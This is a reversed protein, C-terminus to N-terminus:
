LAASGEPVRKELAKFPNEFMGEGFETDIPRGARCFPCRDPKFTKLDLEVLTAITLEAATPGGDPFYKLVRVNGRDCISVAGSVRGGADTVARAMEVLTQGTTVVDDVLLTRKGHLLQQFGGRLIRNARNFPNRDAFAFLVEARRDMSLNYAINQGLAIGSSAPALVADFVAGFSALVCETMMVAVDDLKLPHAYLADKNIYFDGHLGSNYVFHGGDHFAGCEKLIKRTRHQFDRM